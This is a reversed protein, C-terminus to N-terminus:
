PQKRGKTIVNAGYVGGTAPGGTVTSVVRVYRKAGIYSVQQVTNSALNALTGVIDGAATDAMDSGNAADGHQIKPAHTGDTITGPTITIMNANCDALDVLTGNASATRAAPPLSVNTKLTDKIATMSM